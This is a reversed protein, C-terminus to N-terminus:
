SVPSDEADSQFGMYAAQNRSFHHYILLSRGCGDCGVTTGIEAAVERSSGCHTCRVRKVADGTVHAALEGPEAGAATVTALVRAVDAQPGSILLRWGVVATALHGTLGADVDASYQEVHLTWLPVGRATLEARWAIGVPRAAPGVTVVAFNTGYPDPAPPASTNDITM